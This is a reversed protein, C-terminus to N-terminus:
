IKKAIILQQTGYGLGWTRFKFLLRTLFFSDFTYKAKDGISPNVNEERTKNQNIKRFYRAPKFLLTELFFSVFSIGSVEHVTTVFGAKEILRRCEKVTMESVHTPDLNRIFFNKAPTTLVLKGNPKLIRRCEHIVKSPNVIHEIVENLIVYDYSTDNEKVGEGESQLEVNLGLKRCLEVAYTNCELGKKYHCPIRKLLTGYGCGIELVKDNEAFQCLQIIRDHDVRNPTTFGAEYQKYYQINYNAKHDCAKVFYIYCNRYKSFYYFAKKLFFFSRNNLASAQISTNTETLYICKPESVNAVNYNQKATGSRIAQIITATYTSELTQFFYSILKFVNLLLLITIKARMLPSLGSEHLVMFSMNRIARYNYANSFMKPTYLPHYFLVDTIKILTSNSVIKATLAVDDGYLFYDFDHLGITKLLNTKVMLYHFATTSTTKIYKKTDEPYKNNGSDINIPHIAGVNKGLEDLGRRMKAIGYKDLLLADNDTFVIHEYGYKIALEAGIRQAGSSGTNTELVVYNISPFDEKLKIYDQSNNDILLIDFSVGSQELLAKVTAKTIEYGNYTPINIQIDARKEIKLINILHLYNKEM